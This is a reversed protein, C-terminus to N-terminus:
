EILNVMSDISPYKKSETKYLVVNQIGADLAGNLYSEKDDIYLIEDKKFGSKEIAIEYIEKNPKRVGVESSIIIQDFYKDIDDIKLEHHRRSPLSNSLVGLKYNKSLRKLNEKVGKHLKYDGHTRYKTLKEILEDDSDIGLYECMRRHLGNLYETEEELTSLQYFQKTLEKGQQEVLKDVIDQYQEPPFGLENAINEGETTVKYFLVNGADFYIFKINKNIRYM